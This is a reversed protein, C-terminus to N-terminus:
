SQRQSNELGDRGQSHNYQGQESEIWEQSVVCGESHSNLGGPLTIHFFSGQCLGPCEPWQVNGTVRGWHGGMRGDSEDLTPRVYRDAFTQNGESTRPLHWVWGSQAKCDGPGRSLTGKFSTAWAAGPPVEVKRSLREWDQSCKLIM